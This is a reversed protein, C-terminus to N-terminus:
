EEIKEPKKFLVCCLLPTLNINGRDLHRIKSQCALCSGLGPNVRLGESGDGVCRRLQKPFPVDEM